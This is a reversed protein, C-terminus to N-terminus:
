DVDYTLSISLGAQVAAYDFSTDGEPYESEVLREEGWPYYALGLSMGLGVEASLRGRLELAAAAGNGLKSNFRYGASLGLDVAGVDVFVYGDGNAQLTLHLNSGGVGDSVYRTMHSEFILNIGGSARLGLNGWRVEAGVAAGHYWGMQAVFAMDPGPAQPPTQAAARGAIVLCL